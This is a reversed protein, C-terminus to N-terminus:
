RTDIPVKFCASLLRGCQTSLAELEPDSLYSPIRNFSEMASNLHGRAQNVKAAFGPSGFAGAQRYLSEGRKLEAKGQEKLRRAEAPTMRGPLAAPASTRRRGSGGGLLILGLIFIVTGTAGAVVM